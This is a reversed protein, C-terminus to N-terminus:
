VWKTIGKYGDQVRTHTFILFRPADLSSQLTVVPVSSTINDNKDLRSNTVTCFALFQTFHGRADNNLLNVTNMTLNTSWHLANLIAVM